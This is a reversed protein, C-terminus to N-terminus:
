FLKLCYSLINVSIFLNFILVWNLTKMLTQGLDLFQDTLM